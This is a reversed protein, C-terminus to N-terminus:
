ENEGGPENGHESRNEEESDYMRTDGTVAPAGIALVEVAETANAPNYARQPSNPEVAFLSGEDVEYTEAPTEVAMTGSLVYFAEEQTEHYHYALPIQEGPAARFRNIAVNELGAAGSLRQMECPRDEVTEVEECDVVRYGM